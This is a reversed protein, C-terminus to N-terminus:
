EVANVGLSVLVRDTDSLDGVIRRRPPPVKRVLMPIALIQEAIAIEPSATIDIVQLQYEGNLHEECIRKLNAYAAVSKPHDKGGIFLSLQWCDTNADNPQKRAPM